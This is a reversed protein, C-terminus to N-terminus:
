KIFFGKVDVKQLNFPDIYHDLLVALELRTITRNPDFNIFGLLTEWEKQVVQKFHKRDMGKLKNNKLVKSLGYVEDIAQKLTVMVGSLKPNLSHNFEKLGTAFEKTKVLSDGYFWTQNEWGVNKGIGKLIGTCGIRQIAKFYKHDIPLDLFPQLYGRADLIQNQVDRVSVVSPNCHKRVALAALVGAAQGIQMAVPQLRTTGNVLNSVSISKEVVILGEVREPIMVGLPLSYSPVPYLHFDPLVETGTYRSHHHDIPYDGVAIGTRYLKESQEYPKVLHNVNLQVKGHIRRSERYYPIFPLKDDTPFEDDALGLTNFGLATQLYYLYCLTYNKAKKLVEKRQASNMEIINLYYDNGEIPWNIMYKNNPLKGYEMMQKCDWVRQKEKPSTCESTKCTCYFFSANYGEPKPITVDRGYDKLVAVYTLDQIINNAKEPAINEGSVTRSDMGIDYAVGCLKAVDGLETGDIVIKTQVTQRVDQKNLTVLWGTSNKRISVLTTRMWVKLNKEKSAMEMWIKAGVSPEFLTNSVWGTALAKNSGYYAVLNNRFEGWLGGQLKYNGDVASVGASTLMGGLWDFEEAILTSAGMRAAQIGATTGSIGGGVILIDVKQIAYLNLTIFIFFAIFLQKM